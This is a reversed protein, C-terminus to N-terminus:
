VAFELAPKWTIAHLREATINKFFFAKRLMHQLNLHEGISTVAELPLLLNGAM